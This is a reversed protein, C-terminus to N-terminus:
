QPQIYIKLSRFTSGKQFGGGYVHGGSIALSAHIHIFLPGEDRYIGKLAPDMWEIKMVEGTFSLIEGPGSCITKGVQPPLDMSEPTTLTVDKVSGIAGSIYAKEWGHQLIFREIAAKVDEDRPVLIEFVKGSSDLGKM